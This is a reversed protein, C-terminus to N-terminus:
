RDDQCVDHTSWTGIRSGRDDNLYEYQVYMGAGAGSLGITHKM